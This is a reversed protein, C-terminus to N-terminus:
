SAAINWIYSQFAHPYLERSNRPLSMIADKYNRDKSKDLAMVLQRELKNKYTFKKLVEESNYSELYKQKAQDVEESKDKAGIIM